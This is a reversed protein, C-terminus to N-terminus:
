ALFLRSALSYRPRETWEVLWRYFTDCSQNRLNEFSHIQKSYYSNHLPLSCIVDQLDRCTMLLVLIPYDSNSIIHRSGNLKLSHISLDFSFNLTSMFQTKNACWAWALQHVLSLRKASYITPYWAWIEHGKPQFSITINMITSIVTCHINEATNKM